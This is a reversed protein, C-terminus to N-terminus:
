EMLWANIKEVSKVAMEADQQTPAGDPLMGVDPPYRTDIYVSSLMFLEIDTLPTKIKMKELRKALSNVDHIKPPTDGNGEIIGKFIKEVYQQAHFCISSFFGSKSNWLFHVLQFDENAFSLWKADIAVESGKSKM